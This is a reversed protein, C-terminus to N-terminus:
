IISNKLTDLSKRRPLYEKARRSEPSGLGERISQVETKM